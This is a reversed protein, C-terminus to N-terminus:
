KDGSKALSKAKRKEKRSQPGRSPISASASSSESVVPNTSKLLKEIFEREAQLDLPRQNALKHELSDILSELATVLTETEPVGKVVRNLIVKNLKLLPIMVNQKELAAILSEGIWAHHGIMQRDLLLIMQECNNQLQRDSFGACYEDRLYKSGLDVPTIWSSAGYVRLMDAEVSAISWKPNERMGSIIRTLDILVTSLREDQAPFKDVIRKFISGVINTMLNTPADFELSFLIGNLLMSRELSDKYAFDRSSAFSLSKTFDEYLDVMQIQEFSLVFQNEFDLFRSLIRKYTGIRPIIDSADRSPIGITRDLYLQRNIYMLSRYISSRSNHNLFDDMMLLKLVSEYLEVLEQDEWTLLNSVVGFLLEYWEEHGPLYQPVPLAPSPSPVTRGEFSPTPPPSLRSGAKKDHTSSSKELLSGYFALMTNVLSVERVSLIRSMDRGDGMVAYDVVAMTKLRGMGKKSSLAPGRSPGSLAVLFGDIRASFQEATPVDGASILRLSRPNQPTRYLALYDSKVSRMIAAIQTCVLHDDSIFRTHYHLDLMRDYVSSPASAGSRELLIEVFDDDKYCPSPSPDSRTSGAVMPICSIMLIM